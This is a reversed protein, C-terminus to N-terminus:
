VVDIETLSQLNCDIQKNYDILSRHLQQLHQLIVFLKNKDKLCDKVKLNKDDGIVLNVGHNYLMRDCGSFRFYPHTMGFSYFLNSLHLFSKLHVKINGVM